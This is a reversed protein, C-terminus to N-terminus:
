GKAATKLTLRAKAQLLNVVNGVRVYSDIELEENSSLAGLRAKASLDAMRQQDEPTFDWRLIEEALERSLKERMPAITRTLIATDFTEAAPSSAFATSM